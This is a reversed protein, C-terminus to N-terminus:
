SSSARKFRDNIARGLGKNPVYVAIILELNMADLDILTAYLNAAAEKLSHSKSLYKYIVQESKSEVSTFTLVAVKKGTYKHLVKEYSSTVILPTSPAYHKKLMGPADPTESVSKAFLLKGTIKEIEAIECSGERYLVARNNTFGIITSEIGNECTGGDLIYALKGDFYQKVHEPKTPSISMFPNASPAAIPFQLQALLKLTLPHNPIRVAVTSKGATVCASIIDKKELLLTLPGPWFATALEMALPPINTAILDLDTISGIHVILPNFAPRQKLAFIKQVAIESFANAALGYVTETPIAVLEDAQLIKKAIEIDSNIQTM